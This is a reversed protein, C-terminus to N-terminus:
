FSLNCGDALDPSMGLRKKIDPKEEVVKRGSRVKWKPTALERELKQRIQKPLRSLDLRKERARDRVDFWLESRRNPYQEENTAKSGSNVGIVNYGLGLLVDHPGAGLGGSVDIAIPIKKPTISKTKQWDPDVERCARKAADKLADTVFVTDMKRIEIAWLVCPGRRIFITTRDNGFRAIDCGIQPMEGPAPEQKPQFKLWGKPIVQEDAQTPFEGLVRGQFYGTPLYIWRESEPTIPQGGLAANIAPLSWYEFADERLADIHECELDLMEYLWLLRVAKEYLPEQCALELAINPHDLGSISIVNYSPSECAQGFNTAEDTPNGIVLLRCAPHTLLGGSAAWIYIPVDIAEEFIILIPASHEGQFGEGSEANLARIYHRGRLELDQDRVLGTELIQGPLGRARRDQKIEKFTLGLAQPWTPATIYVIHGDPWCDYWWNALVAAAKTKGLAHSAKVATRRNDRVSHCITVQDPTLEVDLVERAYDEPARRYREIEGAELTHRVPRKARLRELFQEKQKPPLSRWDDTPRAGPDRREGTM